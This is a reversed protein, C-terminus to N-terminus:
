SVNLLTISHAPCEISLNSVDVDRLPREEIAVADPRDIDNYADVSDGALTRLKVSNSSSGTLGRINCTIAEEGHLNVLVIGYDGTLPNRTVVADLQQVSKSAGDDAVM